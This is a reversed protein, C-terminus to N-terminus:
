RRPVRRGSKRGTIQDLSSRPILWRGDVQKAGPILGDRAQKALISPRVLLMDAVQTTSLMEDPHGQADTHRRIDPPPPAAKQVRNELRGLEVSLFDFETVFGGGSPSCAYLGCSVEAGPKDELLRALRIQFWFSGDESTEVIYDCGERRIRLWYDRRRRPFPQTSWDSYGNNTVVAGLRAPGEPEYEVSAKLWCTPSIRVMLGAQDYQHLPRYRVRTTLIFDGEVRAYLFHGNDARFGYHTQQWFDTHPDPSVVLTSQKAEVAWLTPPNFWQLRSDFRTKKFQENFLLQIM